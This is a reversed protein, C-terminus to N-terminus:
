KEKKELDEIINNIILQENRQTKKINSTTKYKDLDIMEIDKTSM